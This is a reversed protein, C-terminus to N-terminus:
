LSYVLNRQYAIANKGLRALHKFTEILGELILRIGRLACDSDRSQAGFERAEPEISKQNRARVFAL